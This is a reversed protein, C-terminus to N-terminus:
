SDDFEFTKLFLNLKANEGTKLAIRPNLKTISAFNHITRKETHFFFCQLDRWGFDLMKQRQIYSEGDLERSLLLLQFM